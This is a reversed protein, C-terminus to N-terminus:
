HMAKGMYFWKSDAQDKIKTLQLGRDASAQGMLPLTILFIFIYTVYKM